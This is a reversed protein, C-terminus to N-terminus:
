HIDHTDVLPGFEADARGWGGRLKSFFGLKFFSTNFLFWDNVSQYSGSKMPFTGDLLEQITANSNKAATVNKCLRKRAVIPSVGGSM